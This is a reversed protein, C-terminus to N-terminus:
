TAILFIGRQDEPMKSAKTVDIVWMDISAVWQRTKLDDTEEDTEEPVM